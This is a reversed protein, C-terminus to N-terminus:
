SIPSERQRAEYHMLTLMGFLWFGRADYYGGSFQIATLILIWATPLFMGTPTRTARALRRIVVLLLVTFSVVVVFPIIGSEAGIALFYNHTTFAEDGKSSFLGFDGLGIGLFPATDWAALAESFISGRVEAGAAQSGVFRNMFRDTIEPFWVIIAAAGAIGLAVLKFTSSTLLKKAYLISFATVAVVLALFAGRSGSATVGFVLPFVLLRLSLRSRLISMTIAALAGIGMLRGFVNPGGGFASWRVDLQGRAGIAAAVFFVCSMVLTATILSELDGAHVSSLRSTVALFAGLYAVDLAIAIQVTEVSFLSFFQFFSVLFYAKLAINGLRAAPRVVTGRGIVIAIGAALLAPRTDFGFISFRGATFWISIWSAEIATRDFGALLRRNKTSYETRRAVPAM